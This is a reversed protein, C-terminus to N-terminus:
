WPPTHISTSISVLRISEVGCRTLMERGPESSVCISSYACLWWRLRDPNRALAATSAICLSHVATTLFSIATSAIAEVAMKRTSSVALVYPCPQYLNTSEWGQCLFLFTGLIPCPAKAISRVSALDVSQPKGPRFIWVPPVRCSFPFFHGHLRDSGRGNKKQKFGRPPISVAPLPEHKGVRPVLVLVHWPHPVSSKRNFSRLAPRRRPTEGTQFDLGPAGRM